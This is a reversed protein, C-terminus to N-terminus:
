EKTAPESGAPLAPAKPIPTRSVEKGATDLTVIATAYSDKDGRYKFAFGKSDPTATPSYYNYNTDVKGTVKGSSDLILLNKPGCIVTHKGDPAFAMEMVDTKDKDLTIDLKQRTVKGNLDMVALVFETKDQDKKSEASLVAAKENSLWGVGWADPEAVPASVMRGDMQWIALRDNYAGAVSKGDPSWRAGAAPGAIVKVCPKEPDVILGQYLASVCVSKGDPAFQTRMLSYAMVIGTGLRKDDDGYQFLPTAFPTESVVRDAKLDRIVLTMPYGPTSTLGAYERGAKAADAALDETVPAPKLNLMATLDPPSEQTATERPKAQDIRAKQYDIFKDEQEQTMLPVRLYALLQGDKSFSPAALLATTSAEVTKYKKLGKDEELILIRSTQKGSVLPPLDKAEQPWPDVAAFALKKGDPSFAMPSETCALVHWLVAAAAVSMLAFAPWGRKLPSLRRVM